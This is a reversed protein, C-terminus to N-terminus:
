WSDDTQQPQYVYWGNQGIERGDQDRRKAFLRGGERTQGFSLTARCSLCAIEYFDYGKASRHRPQVQDSGCAGCTSEGFVEVFESLDRIAEKVSEAEVELWIRGVPYRVHVRM